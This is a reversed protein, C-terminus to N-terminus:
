EKEEFDECSDDYMTAIGYNDSDTNSCYFEKETTSYKNNANEAFLLDTKNELQQYDKLQERYTEAFDRLHRIVDWKFMNKEVEMLSEATKITEEFTWGNIVEDINM